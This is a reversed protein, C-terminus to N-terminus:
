TGSIDWNITPATAGTLSWRIETQFPFDVAIAGDDTIAGNTLPVWNGSSPNKAQLTMTGSGFTGDAFALGRRLKVADTEGDTSLAGNAM